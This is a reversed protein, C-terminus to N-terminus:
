NFWEKPFDKLRKKLIGFENFRYGILIKFTTTTSSFQLTEFKATRSSNIFSLGGFFHDGNYGLGIRAAVFTNFKIDNKTSGDESEYYLWNHAPGIALTGNIFFGKYILSYTYGPAIGLTTAKIKRIQANSGFYGAYSEDILASDGLVKFGTLSGFLIFSGGSKLQREAYTYASRFSFRKNNFIYNGSLGINQTQIDPRQPYPEGPLIKINPDVIYYGKYKQFYADVGWKKGIANIQFDQAKSEGYIEKNKENLPIAATLELSVDFVYLGLGFSYPKNSKYNLKNKPDTLSKLEFDQSRQKLVPWLFFHDPYSKVYHERLSDYNVKQSYTVEDDQAYVFLCLGLIFLTFLFRM